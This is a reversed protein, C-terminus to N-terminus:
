WCMQALPALGGEPLLDVLVIEADKSMEGFRWLSERTLSESLNRQQSKEV